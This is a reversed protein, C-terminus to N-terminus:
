ANLTQEEVQSEEKKQKEEHFVFIEVLNGQKIKGEVDDFTGMLVAKKGEMFAKDEEKMKLYARRYQEKMEEPDLPGLNLRSDFCETEPDYVSYIYFKM